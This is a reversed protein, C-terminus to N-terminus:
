FIEEEHQTSANVMDNKQYIALCGQHYQFSLLGCLISLLVEFVKQKYETKPDEIKDYM